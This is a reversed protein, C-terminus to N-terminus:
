DPDIDSWPESFPQDDRPAPHTFDAEDGRSQPITAKHAIGQALRETPENQNSEAPLIARSRGDNGLLLQNHQEILQARKEETSVTLQQQIGFNVQVGGGAKQDTYDSRFSLRLFAEHARWDGSEGAAKIGALAKQRAQERAQGLLADLDAYKKKWDYFSDESIQAVKCAQGQTLGDALANILLTLVEANFKPSDVGASNRRVFAQLTAPSLSNKIEQENM